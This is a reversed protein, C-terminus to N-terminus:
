AEGGEPKRLCQTMQALIAVAIEAPTAAGIDLGVPAHIRALAAPDLGADALRELRKAHTRRSGLSGVYFADSRLATALGPDDIKPDHSLTVVGTRADLGIEALAADPWDNRIDEGPFRSDSGFAGRPDVLIPDYGALRAMTVLAQAIHVAGVIVLRLPPNHIGVFQGAEFGSRDLAFRTALTESVGELRRMWVTTDVVYAVARRAARAAVLEALLDAGMATVPEVLVQITGGCALGVAFADDDSVGYTLLRPQGDDLAELAEAVM